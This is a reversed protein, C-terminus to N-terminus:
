LDDLVPGNEMAINFLWLTIAMTFHTINLIWLVLIIYMFLVDVAMTIKRSYGGYYYTINWDIGEDITRNDMAVIAPLWSTNLLKIRPKEAVLFLQPTYYKM